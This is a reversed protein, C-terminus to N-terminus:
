CFDRIEPVEDRQVSHIGNKGKIFLIKKMKAAPKQGVFKANARFIIAKGLQPQLGGMTARVGIIDVSSLTELLDNIWLASEM